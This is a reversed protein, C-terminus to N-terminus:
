GEGEGDKKRVTLVPTAFDLPSLSYDDARLMDFGEVRIILTNGYQTREATVQPWPQDGRTYGNVLRGDIRVGNESRTWGLSRMAQGVRNYHDQNLTGVRVDLIVWISNTAIKGRPINSVADYIEEHFPDRALRADQARGAAEWLHQPLRISAGSAERAAAEAWLMDRDRKLADVDWKPTRLPWFRRNGTPDRLYTLSNTTGAAVWQRPVEEPFHGYAMRSRDRQRSLTAKVQEIEARRMGSLEAIEIIWKGQTQEIVKKGDANLPLDDSFLEVKPCLAKLAESKDLGQASELVLMEDFKCGPQRVRRVAATLWLAGAASTFPTDEAGGYTTLWRDIRPTGDWVLGDLYDCVPHFGNLRAADPVVIRLMNLTPHFRLQRGMTIWLRHTAADDLAPGFGDIGDVLTRNAFEDYRVTVGLKVMAICINAPSGVPVGKDNTAFDIKEKAQKVQREAYEEPKSQDYIHESIKNARATIVDVIAEDRYGRRLMENIVSWVARSRDGDFLDYRGNRIVDELKGKSSGTSADTLNVEPAARPMDEFKHTAGNFDVLKTACPTRGVRRKKKNPHNITGPLRLIRDVNRTSPAAGLLEALAYNAAEVEAQDACPEELRWLLQLGNGSDIVATPKRELKAIEPLLRAKFQEPTEDDNPDADVHLYESHKVEAKTAKKSVPKKLVAVSYYINKDGNHKAIFDKVGQATKITRTPTTETDPVIATLVWPGDPRFKEKLFDVAADPDPSLPPTSRSSSGNGDIM